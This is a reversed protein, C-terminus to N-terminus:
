IEFHMVVFDGREAGVTFGCAVYSRMIDKLGVADKAVCAQVSACGADDALDLIATLSNKNWGGVPRSGELFLVSQEPVVFARDTVPLVNPAGEAPKVEFFFVPCEEQMEVGVQFFSGDVASANVLSYSLHTGAGGALISESPSSAAVPAPSIKPFISIAGSKVVSQMVM